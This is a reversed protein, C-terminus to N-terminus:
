SPDYRATSGNRQTAVKALDDLVKQHMRWFVDPAKKALEIWLPGPMTEETWLLTLKPLPTIIRTHYAESDLSATLGGGCVIRTM